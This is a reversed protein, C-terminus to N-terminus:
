RLWPYAGSACVRSSPSSPGTSPGRAPIPWWPWTRARWRSAPPPRAPCRGARVPPPARPPHAPTRPPQGPRMAVDVLARHELWRIATGSRENILRALATDRARLTRIDVTRGADALAKLAAVLVRNEPTDYARAAVTYVFCSPDGSSAARAAMTEAWLIPGRLEGGSREPRGQTGITLARSLGPMAKLLRDAERSSLLLVSALIRAAGLSLGLLAEPRPGPIM